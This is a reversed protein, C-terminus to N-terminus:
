LWQFGDTETEVVVTGFTNTPTPGCGPVIMNDEGVPPADCIDQPMTPDLCDKCVRLGTRPEVQTDFSIKDFGCRQCVVKCAGPVYPM